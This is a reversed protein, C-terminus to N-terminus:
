RSVEANGQEKSKRRRVERVAWVLGDDFEQLAAPADPDKDLELVKYKVWKCPLYHLWVPLPSTEDVANTLAAPSQFYDIGLTIAVDTTPYPRIKDLGIPVYGTPTGTTDRWGTVNATLGDEDKAKLPTSGLWVRKIRLLDAPLSALVVLATVAVNQSNELCETKDAVILCGENLFTLLNLDTYHDPDPEKIDLRIYALMETTTM